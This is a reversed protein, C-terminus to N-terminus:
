SWSRREKIGEFEFKRTSTTPTEKKWKARAIVLASRAEDFHYFTKANKQNLTYSDKQLWERRYIWGDNTDRFVKFGLDSETIRYDRKM